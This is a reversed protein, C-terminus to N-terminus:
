SEVLDRVKDEVSANKNKKLDRAVEAQEILPAGTRSKTEALYEQINSVEKPTVVVHQITNSQNYQNNVTINNGVCREDYKEPRIKGLMWAAAKFNSENLHESVVNLCKGELHHLAEAYKMFLVAKMSIDPSDVTAETIQADTPDDPLSKKLERVEDAGDRLWQYFVQRNVGCTAVAAGFPFGLETNKVFEDILATSLKGRFLIKKKTQKVLANCKEQEQVRQLFKADRRFNM